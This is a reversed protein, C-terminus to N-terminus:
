IKQSDAMDPANTRPRTRRKQKQPLLDHSLVCLPLGGGGVIQIKEFKLNIPPFCGHSIVFGSGFLLPEFPLFCLFLFEPLQTHVLFGDLAQM